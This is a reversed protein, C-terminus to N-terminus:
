RYALNYKLYVGFTIYLKRLKSVKAKKRFVNYNMKEIKRLIGFYIHQMIRAPFLLKRDQKDFSNNAKEFYERARKCEFKMLEVFSDNYRSNLLDEETYGFRKLDEEPIYIRGNQADFKIDRLINTLQMAIGLNTAYDKANKTRYGFVEISILGVTVAVRYCYQYLTEFDKYRSTQLDAEVGKILEFFPEVPLNFKRIIKNLQNILPYNSSGSLGKELEERWLRIKKYKIELSDTENDVIDDTQRCFAYVTSIGENKDKPLLSFSYLFNTKSKATIEFHEQNM